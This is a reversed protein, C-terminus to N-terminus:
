QLLMETKQGPSPVIGAQNNNVGYFPRLIAIAYLSQTYFQCCGVAQRINFYDLKVYFCGRMANYRCM